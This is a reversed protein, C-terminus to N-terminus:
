TDNRNQQITWRTWRRQRGVEIELDLRELGGREAVRSMVDVLRHRDPVPVVRVWGPGDSDARNVGSLEVWPQNVAMARGSLDTALTPLPVLAIASPVLAGPLLDI